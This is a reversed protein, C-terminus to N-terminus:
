DDSDSEESEAAATGPAAMNVPVLPEDLGEIPNMNELRRAENRTMFGAQIARSYAEYRSKQDGRLLGDVKFEFFLGRRRERQTLLARNLQQEWRVLWPRLSDVVWAISQHEINSFTARDLDAIKHPPVGYARAIETVQFKRSEILQSDENNLGISQWKLGGGLVATKHANGSGGQAANWARSIQRQQDTDLDSDSVLIGGPQAGNEFLMGAHEEMSMASSIAHRMLWIPSHSEWVDSCLGKLHLVQSREAMQRGEFMYLPVQPNEPDPLVTVKDPHQPWLGTVSGGGDQEIVAFAAGRLCLHGQLMERWEVSTQVDNPSDHLLAYLPHQMVAGISDNANRQLLKLPLSAVGESLLRVCAYVAAVEMANEHTVRKGSYGPSGFFQAIQADSFRPGISATSRVETARSFRRRVVNRHARIPSAKAQRSQRFIGM